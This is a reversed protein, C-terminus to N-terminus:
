KSMYRFYFYFHYFYFQYHIIFNFNIIIIQMSRQCNYGTFGPFCKCTGTLTDCLGAGSCITSAHAHDVSYAKDFWAIGSPCTGKM